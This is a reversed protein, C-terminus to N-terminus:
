RLFIACAYWAPPSSTGATSFKSAPLYTRSSNPDPTNVVFVPATVLGHTPGLTHRVSTYDFGGFLCFARLRRPVPTEDGAPAVVENCARQVRSVDRRGDLSTRRSLEGRARSVIRSKERM